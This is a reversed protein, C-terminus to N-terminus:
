SIKSLHCVQFLQFQCYVGLFNEFNCDKDTSYIVNWIGGRQGRSCTKRGRCAPLPRSSEYDESNTVHLTLTFMNMQWHGLVHVAFGRFLGIREGCVICFCTVSLLLKQFGM